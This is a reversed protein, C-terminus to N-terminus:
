KVAISEKSKNAALVTKSGERKAPSTPQTKM